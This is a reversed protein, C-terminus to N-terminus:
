IISFNIDNSTETTHTFWILRSHPEQQQCKNSNEQHQTYHLRAQTKTQIDDGQSTFM